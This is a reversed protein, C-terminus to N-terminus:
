NIGGRIMILMYPHCYLQIPLDVVNRVRNFIEDEYGLLNLLPLSPSDRIFFLNEM